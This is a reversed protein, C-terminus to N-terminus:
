KESVTNAYKNLILVSSMPQSVSLHYPRNVGAHSLTLGHVCHLRALYVDAYNSLDLM